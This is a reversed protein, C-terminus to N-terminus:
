EKEGSYSTRNSDRLVLSVDLMDSLYEGAWRRHKSLSETHSSDPFSLWIRCFSYMETSSINSKMLDTNIRTTPEAVRGGLQFRLRGVREPAV